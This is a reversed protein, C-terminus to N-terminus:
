KKSMFFNARLDYKVNLLVWRDLNAFAADDQHTGNHQYGGDREMYAMPYILTPRFVHYKKM